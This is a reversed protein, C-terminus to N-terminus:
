TLVRSFSIESVHSWSQREQPGTFLFTTGEECEFRWSKSLDEGLGHEKWAVDDNGQKHHCVFAPGMAEADGQRDVV